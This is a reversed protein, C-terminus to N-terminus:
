QVIFFGNVCGITRCVVFIVAILIDCKSLWDEIVEVFDAGPSIDDTDLFVKDKSFDNILRSHMSTAAWASDDRRYSIFIQGTM